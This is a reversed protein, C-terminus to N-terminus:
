RSLFKGWHRLPIDLTLNKVKINSEGDSVKGGEQISLDKTCWVTTQRTTQLDFLWDKEERSQLIFHNRWDVHSHQISFCSCMVPPTGKLLKWGAHMHVCPQSTTIVIPSRNLQKQFLINRLVPIVCRGVLAITLKQCQINKALGVVTSGSGGHKRRFQFSSFGYFM